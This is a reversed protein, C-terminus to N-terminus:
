IYIYIYIYAEQGWHTLETTKITVEDPCPRDHLLVLRPGGCPRFKRDMSALRDWILRFWFHKRIKFSLTHDADNSGGNRICQGWRVRQWVSKQVLYHIARSIPKILSWSITIVYIVCRQKVGSTNCPSVFPRWKGSSMKLHIKMFSIINIEILIDNFNTGLPRILLIGTNTWIIAQRRDPSLGNDSGITSLKSVCIHALRGCHTLYWIDRTFSNYTLYKIIGLWVSVSCPMWLTYISQCTNINANIQTYQKCASSIYVHKLLYCPMNTTM